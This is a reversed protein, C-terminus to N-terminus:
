STAYNALCLASLWRFCDAIRTAGSRERTSMGRSVLRQVGSSASPDDSSPQSRLRIFAREDTSWKNSPAWGPGARRSVFPGPSRSPTSQRHCGPVQTTSRGHIQIARVGM